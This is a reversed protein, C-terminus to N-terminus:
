LTAFFVCKTDRLFLGADHRGQLVASTSPNERASERKFKGGLSVGVALFSDYDHHSVGHGLYLRRKEEGQRRSVDDVHAVFYQHMRSSRGQRSGDLMLCLGFTPNWHIRHRTKSRELGFVSAMTDFCRACHRLRQKKSVSIRQKVPIDAHPLHEGDRIGVSMAAEDSKQHLASGEHPRSNQVFVGHLTILKSKKMSYPPM